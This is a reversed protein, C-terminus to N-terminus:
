GPHSLCLFNANEETEESEYDVVQVLNVEPLSSPVRCMGLGDM